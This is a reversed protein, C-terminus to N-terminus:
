IIILRTLLAQFRSRAYISLLHLCPCRFPSPLQCKCYPRARTGLSQSTRKCAHVSGLHCRGFGHEDWTLVRALCLCLLLCSRLLSCFSFLLSTNRKRDISHMIIIRQPDGAHPQSNLTVLSDFLHTALTILYNVQLTFPQQILATYVSPSSPWSSHCLPLRDKYPMCHM